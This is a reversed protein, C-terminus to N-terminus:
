GNSAEAVIEEFVHFVLNGGRLFCSGLYKGQSPNPAPHGTGCVAIRRETLRANPDCYYWVCIVEQQANVYKIEAGEPIRIIQVGSVTLEAKWMTRKDM